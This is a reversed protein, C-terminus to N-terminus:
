RGEGETTAKSLLDALEIERGRWPSSNRLDIGQERLTGLAWEATEDWAHQELTAFSANTGIYTSGEHQRDKRMRWERPYGETTRKITVWVRAVSVVEAPIFREAPDKIRRSDNMSRRVIVKQGPELTGLKPREGRVNTM